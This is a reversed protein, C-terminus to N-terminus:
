EGSKQILGTHHTIICGGRQKETIAAQKVSAAVYRYYYQLLPTGLRITAVLRQNLTLDVSICGINLDTTTTITLPTPSPGMTAVVCITHDEDLSYRVEDGFEANLSTVLTTHFVERAKKVQVLAEKRDITKDESTVEVEPADVEDCDVVSDVTCEVGREIMYQSLQGLDGRYSVNLVQNVEDNGTMIPRHILLKDTPSLLVLRIDHGCNFKPNGTLMQSNFLAPYRVVHDWDIDLLPELNQNIADGKLLSAVYKCDINIKACEDDFKMLGDLNAPTREINITYTM